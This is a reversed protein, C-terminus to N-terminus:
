GHEPDDSASGPFRYLNITLAGSVLSGHVAGAAGGESQMTSVRLTQGFIPPWEDCTEAMNFVPYDPLHRYCRKFRWAIHAAATNGDLTQTLKSM